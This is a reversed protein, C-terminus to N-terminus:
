RRMASVAQQYSQTIVHQGYYVRSDWGYAGIRSSNGPLRPDSACADNIGRGMTPMSYRTRGGVPVSQWWTSSLGTGVWMRVWGDYAFKFNLMVRCWTDTPMSFEWGLLRYDGGLVLRLTGKSLGRFAVLSLPSTGNFPAGYAPTVMSFWDHDGLATKPAPLYVSAGFWWEDSDVGPGLPRVFRPAEAEARDMTGAIRLGRSNDFFAVRRDAGAPDRLTGLDLGEIVGAPQMYPYRSFGTQAFDAVFSNAGAARAVNSHPGMYAVAGAGAVGLAGRLISRRSITQSFTSALLTM